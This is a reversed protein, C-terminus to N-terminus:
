FRSMHYPSCGKPTTSLTTAMTTTTRSSDSVCLAFFIGNSPTDEGHQCYYTPWYGCASDIKVDESVNRSSKMYVFTFDLLDHGSGHLATLKTQLNYLNSVCWGASHATTVCMKQSYCSKPAPCPTELGVKACTSALLTGTVNYNGAPIQVKTYNWGEGSYIM